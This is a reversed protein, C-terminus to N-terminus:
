EETGTSRGPATEAAALAKRLRAILGDLRAVIERSGGAAPVPMSRAAAIAALRELAAELRAAAEGPDNM